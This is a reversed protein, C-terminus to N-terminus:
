PEKRNGAAIGLERWGKVVPKGPQEAQKLSLKGWVYTTRLISWSGRFSQASDKYGTLSSCHPLLFKLGPFPLPLLCFGAVTTKQKGMGRSIRSKAQFDDRSWPPHMLCDM